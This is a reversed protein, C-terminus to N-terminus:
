CAETQVYYDSHMFPKSYSLNTHQTFVHLTESNLFLKCKGNNQFNQTGNVVLWGFFQIPHPYSKHSFKDLQEYSGNM